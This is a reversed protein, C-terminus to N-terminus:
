KDSMTLELFSNSYVRVIYPTFRKRMLIFFIFELCYTHPQKNSRSQSLVDHTEIDLM